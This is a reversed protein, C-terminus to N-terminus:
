ADEGARQGTESSTPADPAATPAQVPEMWREPGATSRAARARAAQEALLRAADDADLHQVSPTVPGPTSHVAFTAVGLRRQLPGQAVALSQTREHPVVDLRRVLRGGRLLLARDTVTFAHRRWALPDLWRARRPANTFRGAAAGDPTAMGTLGEDLLALPDDTGLDPLVLWLATLAEARPGVPLLVTQAQQSGSEAGGYGAVNVRVRWWDPGRWLPGQTLSVAQVRGPPITQARTELLGRRLRIGDPSLAARFGFEGAFRQFVYSGGGIVAPFASALIGPQRTIVVAVVVGLIALLTLWVAPSRVLSRVLLMPPVEYLLEEPAEVAAVTTPVGPSATGDGADAQDAVPAPAPASRLGAARALLEARLRRAEEEKLFGIAVASGSGGAVELTLEALGFLRAVVPQRIDVAQLRDLRAHRLQRFLVGKRMYVSDDDLAYATMRWALASYGLAVTALAVIGLLIKWWLGGVAANLEAAENLQELSQQGLFVIAVAVVTWSRVLPTIPHLRRWQLDTGPEPASM